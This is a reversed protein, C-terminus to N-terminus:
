PLVLLRLSGARHEIKYITDPELSTAGIPYLHTQYIQPRIDGVVIFDYDSLTKFFEIPDKDCAWPYDEGPHEGKPLIWVCSDNLNKSNLMSRFSGPLDTTGGWWMVYIRSSPKLHPTLRKELLTLRYLPNELPPALSFALYLDKLSRGANPLAVLICLIIVWIRVNFFLLGIKVAAKQRVGEGSADFIQVMPPNEMFLRLGLGMSILLPAILFTSVYRHISALRVGEWESFSFIYLLLLVSLYSIFFLLFVVFITLINKSHYRNFKCVVLGSFISIAFWYTTTHVSFFLYEAMKRTTLSHREISSSRSLVNFFEAISVQLKFEAGTLGAQGLYFRWLLYVFGGGFMAAVLTMLDHRISSGRTFVTILFVSCIAFLFFLLGIQKIIPLILLLPIFSFRQLLNESERNLIYLLISAGFILGLPLDAQITHFGSRFIWMLSYVSIFILGFVGISTKENTKGYAYFITSVMLISLFGQAFLSGQVSWDLGHLFYYHFLALAPPYAAHGVRDTSTVFRNTNLITRSIEGWHHYDDIVVFASYSPTNVLVLLLVTIAFVYGTLLSFKAQRTRMVLGLIALLGAFGLGKLVWFAEELVGAIGALYLILILLAATPASMAGATSSTVRAVILAKGYFTLISIILSLTM